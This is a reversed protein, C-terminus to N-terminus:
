VGKNETNSITTNSDDFHEYEKNKYYEYSRVAILKYDSFYKNYLDRDILRYALAKSSETAILTNRNITYQEYAEKETDFMRIVKAKRPDPNELDYEIFLWKNNRKSYVVGPVPNGDQYMADQHEGDILRLVMALEKFIMNCTRPNAKRKKPDVNWQTLIEDVDLTDILSPDKLWKSNDVRWQRFVNPDSWDKYVMKDINRPDFPNIFKLEHFDSKAKM